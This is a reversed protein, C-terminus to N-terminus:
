TRQFQVCRLSLTANQIGEYPFTMADTADSAGQAYLLPIYHELTPLARRWLPAWEPDSRQLLFDVDRQELARAVRQDFEVAWAEPSADPNLDVEGLNHTINGSGLILIGDDRLPELEQSLAHHGGLDLRMDLSLQLVPVEASPYLHRLVSWAGHDLGWSSDERVGFRSLQRAVRAAVEPAGPAHYQVEFLAKPFGRFDHITKPQVVNLVRTGKTLWHASIVLIAKPRPLNQGLHGLAQTFSNQELANMPSGHAVFLTPMRPHM